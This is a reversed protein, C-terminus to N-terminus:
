FKRNKFDLKLGSDDIGDWLFDYDSTLDVLGQLISKRKEKPLKKAEKSISGLM